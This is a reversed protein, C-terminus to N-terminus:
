IGYKKILKRIEAEYESSSLPKIELQRKADEYFQLRRQYSLKKM